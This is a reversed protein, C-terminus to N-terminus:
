QQGGALGDGGRWGPPATPRPGSRRADKTGGAQGFQAAATFSDASATLATFAQPRAPHASRCGPGPPAATPRSKPSRCATSPPRRRAWPPSMTGTSRSRSSCAPRPARQCRCSSRPGAAATPAQGYQPQGDHSGAAVFGHAGAAVALMRSSGSVDNVDRARTWSTLDPSWWVGALYAGGPAALKGVIVYGAPGRRGRRRCAPWTMPPRATRSGPPATPPPSCPRARRASPSGAPPGHTM